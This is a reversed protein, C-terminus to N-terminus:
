FTRELFIKEGHPAAQTKYGFYHALKRREHEYISLKSPFLFPFYASEAMGRLYM